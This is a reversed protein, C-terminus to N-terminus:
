RGSSLILYEVPAKDDTLVLEQEFNFTNKPLELSSILRQSSGFLAPSMASADKTDIPIDSNRAIFMVNQFAEPFRPNLPYIKYNSFVHGITKTISGTLTPANKSINGVTNMIMVGDKTLHDRISIFFEASALHPPVTMDTSFADVFIVDYQSTTSRLFVRADLVHNTIPLNEDLDFYQHALTFLVPEIEVVDFTLSPDHTLIIRPVTYAGGGIVLYSKAEPVLYSYLDAFHTYEFAHEKSNLFIGSSHNQDRKLIRTAKGRYETDYILIHSYLGEGEYVANSRPSESLRIGSLIFVIAVLTLLFFRQQRAIITLFSHTPETIRDFLILGLTGLLILMVGTGVISKTLGLLPVLVFGTLLSGVISGITGWFFVIGTVSGREHQKAHLGTLTVVYPSVTGLLFSPVFFIGISIILPGLVHSFVASHQELLIISLLETLLTTVGAATIIQFLKTHTPYADSLKGGIIYGLSLAGLIVTLVSSLVILSTGFYPSLIRVGAVEIILVAAGTIFVTAYLLSRIKQEM